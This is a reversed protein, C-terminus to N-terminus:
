SRRRRSGSIATGVSTTAPPWSHTQGGRALRVMAPPIGPGPQDDEGLCPVEREGLLRVLEVLGDPVEEGGAGARGGTAM